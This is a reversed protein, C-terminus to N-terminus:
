CPIDRVYPVTDSHFRSLDLTYIQYLNEKMKKYRCLRGHTYMLDKKIVSYGLPLATSKSEMLSLRQTPEFGVETAM